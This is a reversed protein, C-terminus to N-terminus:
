YSKGVFIMLHILIFKQIKKMSKIIVLPQSAAKSVVIKTLFIDDENYLGKLKKTKLFNDQIILIYCVQNALASLFHLFYEPFNHAEKVKQHIKCNM